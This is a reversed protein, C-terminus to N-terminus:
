GEGCAFSRSKGKQGVFGPPWGRDDKKNEDGFPYRSRNTAKANIKKL